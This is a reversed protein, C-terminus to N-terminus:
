KMRRPSSQPSRRQRRRFRSSDATPAADTDHFRWGRCQIRCRGCYTKPVGPLRGTNIPETELLRDGVARVFREDDASIRM